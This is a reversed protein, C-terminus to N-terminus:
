RRWRMLWTLATPGTGTCSSALLGLGGGRGAVASLADEVEEVIWRRLPARYDVEGAVYLAALALDRASIQVDVVRQRRRLRL